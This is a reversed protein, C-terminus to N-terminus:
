RQPAAGPGSRPEQLHSADGHSPPLPDRGAPCVRGECCCVRLKRLDQVNGDSQRTSLEGHELQCLDATCSIGSRRRAARQEGLSLAPQVRCLAGCNAGLKRGRRLVRVARLRVERRGRVRGYIAGGVGHGEHLVRVRGSRAWLVEHASFCCLGYGCRGPLTAADDRVLVRPLVRWHYARPLVGVHGRAFPCTASDAEPHATGFCSSRVFSTLLM